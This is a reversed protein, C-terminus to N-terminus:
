VELYIEIRDDERDVELYYSRYKSDVENIFSTIEFAKPDIGLGYLKLVEELPNRSRSIEKLRDEEVSARLSVVSGREVVMELFKFAERSGEREVRRGRVYVTVYGRQPVLDAELEECYEENSEFKRIVCQYGLERLGECLEELDEGSVEIGITSLVDDPLSGKLAQLVKEVDEDRVVVRISLGSECERYILHPGSRADKISPTQSYTDYTIEKM